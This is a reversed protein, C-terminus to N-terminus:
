LGPDHLAIVQKQPKWLLLFASLLTLPIAFYWVSLTVNLDDDMIGLSSGVWM